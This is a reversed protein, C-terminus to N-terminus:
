TEGEGPVSIGKFPRRGGEFGVPEQGIWGRSVAVMTIAMDM